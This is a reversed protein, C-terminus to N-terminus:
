DDRETRVITRQNSALVKKRLRISQPTIEVLEDESLYEMAKELTMQVPPTLILKEDAGSSRVNSLHKERCVNVNMDNERSNEGVIMGEAADAQPGIFLRGRPQLHFLAYTTAVGTRDSVLSGNVRSQIFGAPDDYGDFLTNLLGQGRTDYLVVRLRSALREAVPLWMRHTDPYGHVLVVVPADPAGTEHVALDVADGRVTRRRWSVRPDPHHAM